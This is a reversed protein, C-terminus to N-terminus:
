RKLFRLVHEGNEDRLRLIYMGPALTPISVAYRDFGEPLFSISEPVTHRYNKAHWRSGRLDFIEIKFDEAVNAEPDICLYIWDDEVPNPFILIDGDEKGTIPPPNPTSFPVHSRDVISFQWDLEVRAVYEYHEYDLELHLSDGRDMWVTMTDVILENAPALSGEIPLNAGLQLRALGDHLLYFTYHDSVPAVIDGEWRVSFSDNPFAPQDHWFPSLVDWNEKIRSVELARYFQRDNGIGKYVEMNGAADYSWDYPEVSLYQLDITDDTAPFTRTLSTQGDEWQAFQYISDGIIAYPPAEITRNLKLVSRLPYETKVKKGDVSIEVGEPQSRFFMTVKEPPVDRYASATLGTSDVAELHIRYYVNTDVEGYTEVVYNGNTTGSLPALAPHFHEDHHFNISWALDTPPVAQQDADTVTAAFHLTDGAAYSTPIGQLQIVPRSGDVVSLRATDSVAEGNANTVRVWFVAQDDALQVNGLGLSPGNASGILSGNRYWTYTLGSGVADVEFNVNEGVPVIQDRPQVSILPKANEGQYSIRALTGNDFNVLYLFGDPSTTINNYGPGMDSAFVEVEFNDPNMAMVKGECLEMFFYKGYYGEPFLNLDPEYFTAGVVACGFDHNYVHIPDEYRNDPAAAGNLPGELLHWGYNKGMIYENVEEFSDNGVDNFFIRGSHRSVAMTYPNRIGYAAIARNLGTNQAYFPNDTPISGDPNIRLIKGLRSDMRQALTLSTGDGVGLVLAGTADFVMGAGNHFAAWMQDLRLIEVESGPIATNGADTVRAVVNRNENPLTYYLYVFGNTEFDPDLVLGDLGREGPTQTQVTYFPDDLLIGNEVIRVKGGKEAIFIRGDPAIKLDTPNSLGEVFVEEMVFGTPLVPDHAYSFTAGLLISAILFLIRM